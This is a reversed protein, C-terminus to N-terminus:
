RCLTELTVLLAISIVVMITAVALITPSVQERLQENLVVLPEDMSLLDPELSLTRAVVAWQQRGGSLRASRRM